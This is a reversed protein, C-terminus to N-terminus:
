KYYIKLSLIKGTQSPNYTDTRTSCQNRNYPEFYLYRYQYYIAACPTNISYVRSLSYKTYVSGKTDVLINENFWSRKRNTLTSFQGFMSIVGHTLQVLRVCRLTHSAKGSHQIKSIHGRQCWMYFCM